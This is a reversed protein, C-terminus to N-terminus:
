GPTDGPKAGCATCAPDKPLRINRWRMDRADFLGLQGMRIAGFPVLARIAELAAMSGMIGTLAGLVGNAACNAAAEDPARGVLCQYCPADDRWGYYSALQGEFPGIAASILPIQWAISAHNAALRTAFNDSGDIMVDFAKATNACFYQDSFRRNLPTIRCDPNLAKLRKAAVDVKAKGIDDGGFLIQRQLNSRSVIDDDMLTIQGIGAAALYAAIPCGLGGAGILLVHSSLLRAQGAGGIEPLIIHRSYRDLQDDTLNM